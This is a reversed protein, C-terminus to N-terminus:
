YLMHWVWDSGETVQTDLPLIQRYPMAVECGERWGVTHWLM